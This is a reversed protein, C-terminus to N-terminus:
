RTLEPDASSASWDPEFGLVDTDPPLTPNFLKNHAITAQCLPNRGVLRWVKCHLDFRQNYADFALRCTQATRIQAAGPSAPPFTATLIDSFERHKQYYTSSLFRIANERRQAPDNTKASMHNLEATLSYGPSKNLVTIIAGLPESQGNLIVDPMIAEDPRGENDRMSMQRVRCQWKLFADKLPHADPTIGLTAALSSM